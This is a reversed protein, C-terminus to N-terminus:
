ISIPIWSSIQNSDGKWIPYTKESVMNPYSKKNKEILPKINTEVIRTIDLILTIGLIKAPESTWKLAPQTM